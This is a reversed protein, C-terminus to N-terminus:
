EFSTDASSALNWQLTEDTSGLLLCSTTEMGLSEAGNQWRSPFISAITVNKEILCRHNEDHDAMKVIFM